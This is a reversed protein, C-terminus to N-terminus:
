IPEGTWFDTPVAEVIEGYMNIEVDNEGTETINYPKLARM